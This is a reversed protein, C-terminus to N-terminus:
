NFFEEGAQILRFTEVVDMDDMYTSKVYERTEDYLKFSFAVTVYIIVLCISFIWSAEVTM